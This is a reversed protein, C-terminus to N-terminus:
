SNRILRKRWTEAMVYAAQAEASTGESVFDPCGCVERVLGKEDIRGSVTRFAKEAAERYERGVYGAPIGRFVAAAMMMASTGDTFSEPDDLIDHFRGDALQSKLMSHLLRTLFDSLEDRIAPFGNQEAAELQLANSDNFIEKLPRQEIYTPLRHIEANAILGMSDGTISRNIPMPPPAKYDWATTDQQQKSGHGCSTASALALGMLLLLPLLRLIDRNM